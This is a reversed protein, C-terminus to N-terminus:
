DHAIEPCKKVASKLQDYSLGSPGVSRGSPLGKIAVSIEDSTVINATFFDRAADSVIRNITFDQPIDLSKM